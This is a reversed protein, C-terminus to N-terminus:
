KRGIGLFAMDWVAAHPSNRREETLQATLQDVDYAAEDVIGKDIIRQRVAKLIFPVRADETPTVLAAESRVDLATIGAEEMVQYLCLGLHQMGGEQRVMEWMWGHVKAHLPMVQGLSPGTMADHEQFAFIGGSRVAAVIRSVAEVADSQYMLVRRTVAADFGGKPVDEPILDGSVFSVNRIRNKAAEERAMELADENRDVGIVHGKPGVREALQFTVNGAGCGADLVTMKPGIGSRDILHRTMGDDITPM